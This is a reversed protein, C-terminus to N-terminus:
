EFTDLRLYLSYFCVYSVSLFCEDKEKRKVDYPCSSSEDLSSMM